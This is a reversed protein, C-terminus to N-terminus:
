AQVLPPTRWPTALGPRRCCWALSVEGAHSAGGPGTAAAGRGGGPQAGGAVARRRRRRRGGRGRRHRRGGGGGCSRRQRIAAAGPRGLVGRRRQPRGADSGSGRRQRPSSTGRAGDANGAPVLCRPPRQKPRCWVCCWVPSQRVRRSWRSAGVWPIRSRVQVAAFKAGTGFVPAGQWTAARHLQVVRPMHVPAMRVVTVGGPQEDSRAGRGPALPAAYSSSSGSSTTEEEEEDDGGFADWGNAKPAGRPPAAPPLAPEPPPGVLVACQAAWSPAEPGPQAGSSGQQQPLQYGCAHLFSALSGDALGPSDKPVWCVTAPSAPQAGELQQQQPAAAVLHLLRRGLGQRRQDARVVVSAVQRRVCHAAESTTTATAAGVLQPLEGPADHLWALAVTWAGATTQLAQLHAATFAARGQVKAHKHLALLRAQDAASLDALPRVELKLRAATHQQSAGAM